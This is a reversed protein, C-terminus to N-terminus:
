ELVKPVLFLGDQTSPANSMLKDRENTATVEDARLTQIADHPNALPEINSTDVAQMKDILKLVNNISNTVEPIQEQTIQIRALIAAKEIDSADVSM